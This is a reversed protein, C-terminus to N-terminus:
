DEGLWKKYDPNLLNKIRPEDMNDPTAVGGGTDVRTEIKQKRLHQVMTKVGMYGMNIPDQLVLGHILKKRLADVLKPNSDFGVFKIKGALGADELARLMGFTTTENPTFVGDAERLKPMLFEATKMSREIDGGRQNESTIEIGPHKKIAELFGAERNETSASGELYRMLVVKGKGGLLKALHEGGLRGANKNDTAVFSVHESGGLGSDIIVTPIGSRKANKVQIQLAPGHHTPALVIGDVRRVIFDEMVKTQGELDDEKMAGKWIVEVDPLEKEAKVAGAHVSKWFSHTTGKPIVAITLKKKDGGAPQTGNCSALTAAAAACISVILLNRM